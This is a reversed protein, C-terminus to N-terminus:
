RSARENDLEDMDYHLEKTVLSIWRSAGENGLEVTFSKRQWGENYLEDM